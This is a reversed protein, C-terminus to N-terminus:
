KGPDPRWDDNDQNYFLAVSNMETEKEGVQIVLKAILASGKISRAGTLRELEDTDVEFHFSATRQIDSM